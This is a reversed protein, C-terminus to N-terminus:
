LGEWRRRRSSKLVAECLKVEHHRDQVCEFREAVAFAPVQALSLEPLIPSVFGLKM